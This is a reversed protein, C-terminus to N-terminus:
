ASLNRSEDEDSIPSPQVETEAVREGSPIALGEYLTNYASVAAALSFHTVIYTRAREGAAIRHVPQQEL